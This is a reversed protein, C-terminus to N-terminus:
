EKYRKFQTLNKCDELQNFISQSIEPFDSQEGTKLNIETHTTALSLIAKDETKYFDVDFIAHSTKVVWLKKNNLNYFVVENNQPSSNKFKKPIGWVVLYSNNCNTKYWNIEGLNIKKMHKDKQVNLTSANELKINLSTSAYSICTFLCIGLISIYKIMIIIQDTKKLSM